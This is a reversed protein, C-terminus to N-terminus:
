LRVEAFGSHRLYDAIKNAIIGLDRYIEFVAQASAPSPATDMRVKDMEMTLVIANLHLIAKGEFIWREPVQTYGISSVGLARAYDELELLFGEPVRTKPQAPNKKLLTMSRMVGWMTMPMIPAVAPDLGTNKRKLKEKMIEFRVPADAASHHAASMAAVRNEWADIRGVLVGLFSKKLWELVKAM